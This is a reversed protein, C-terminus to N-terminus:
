KSILLVYIMLRIYIRLDDFTRCIRLDDLTMCIRLDDLTM